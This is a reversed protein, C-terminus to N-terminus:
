FPVEETLQDDHALFRLNSRQAVMTQQVEYSLDAEEKYLAHEADHISILGFPKHLTLVVTVANGGDDSQVHGLEISIIKGLKDRNFYAVQDLPKFQAPPALLKELMNRMGDFEPVPCSPDHTVNDPRQGVRECVRCVAMVKDVRYFNQMAM